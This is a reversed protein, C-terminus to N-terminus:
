LARPRQAEMPSGTLWTAADQFTLALRRFDGAPVTVQDAHINDLPDFRQPRYTAPDRLQQQRFWVWQAELRCVPEVVQRAAELLQVIHYYADAELVVVERHRLSPEPLPEPERDLRKG